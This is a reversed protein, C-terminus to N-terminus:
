YVSTRGVIANYHDHNQLTYFSALQGNTIYVTVVRYLVQFIVEQFRTYDTSVTQYHHVRLM